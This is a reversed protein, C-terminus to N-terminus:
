AVCGERAGGFGIGRAPRPRGGGGHGAHGARGLDVDGLRELAGGITIGDRYRDFVRPDIYSARCVAPTNGLYHAVEKVARTIARERGTKSGAAVAPSPSRRGRGARDRELHPLGQGLLGRRDVDKLYENIDDSRVDCGAAARRTPSCSRAAAAAASSSGDRGRAVKPDVVAQVRRQGSKAPYDFVMADGDGSRSTASACRRWATPAREAGRVGRHRHPLLRPRATARRLRARAGSPLGDGRAPRRGGSACGRCRAPSGRADDDFKEQDRRRAGTSTTSTSSAAPRTPARGGSIHGNPYPCIWVDKWAPPIGLERIRELVEADEIREGDEDLYEFGRGRGRRRIGPGSCDVRRLRPM